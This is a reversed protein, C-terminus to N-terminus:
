LIDEGLEKRFEKLISSFVVKNASKTLPRKELCVAFHFEYFKQSFTIEDTAWNRSEIM